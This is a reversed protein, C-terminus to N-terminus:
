SLNASPRLQGVHRLSDRRVNAGRSGRERRQSVNRRLVLGDDVIRQFKQPQALFAPGKTDLPQARAAQLCKLPGFADLRVRLPQELFHFLQFTSFLLGSQLLSATRSVVSWRERRAASSLGVATLEIRASMRWTCARPRVTMESIRPSGSKSVGACMTSAAAAASCAPRVRYGSLRPSFGSRSATAALSARSLPSESRRRVRLDEDGGARREANVRREGREQVLAVLHQQGVRDVVGVLRRDQEAAAPDPGHSRRDLLPRKASVASASSAASVGADRTSSSFVGHFGTPVTNRSSSSRAIPSSTTRRLRTSM